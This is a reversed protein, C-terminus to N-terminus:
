LDDLDCTELLDQTLKGKRSYEEPALYRDGWEGVTSDYTTQPKTKCLHLMNDKLGKLLGLRPYEKVVANYEDWSLPNGQIRDPGQFDAWIGYSTAQVEPEKEFVISGITHLAIADWVLQLRHKDWDPAERRLFGRAANAGDVEFRKDASIIDSHPPHGIPFGLDHLLAAVAHAERDREGIVKDAIIFGFLFSRIIHNFTDDSSYERAFDIAKTILPTDPVTVGALVRTPLAEGASM